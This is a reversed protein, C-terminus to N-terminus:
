QQGQRQLAYRRCRENQLSRRVIMGGAVLHALGLRLVRVHKMMRVTKLMKAVALGFDAPMVMKRALARHQHLVVLVVVRSRDRLARRPALGEAGCENCQYGLRRRKVHGPRDVHELNAVRFIQQAANVAADLPRGSEKGGSGRRKGGDLPSGPLARVELNGVISRRNDACRSGSANDADASNVYSRSPRSSAPAGPVDPIDASENRLLRRRRLPKALM